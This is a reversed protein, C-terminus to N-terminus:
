PKRSGRAEFWKRVSEKAHSTKLYGLNSNLWDRSPGKGSKGSIIEVTDGNRLQYTLTMLKGNIRAGVCRHGLDTHVRYAFDVPTSGAPLDRIEGQPTYVFVQDNLIDTRVSELFDATSGLDKHWELLQRLWSIRQEFRADSVGGEKYHWHAAIGYEATHHMEHTRIQIEIPITGFCMVTTHLSKYGNDKPSAIYDDFEQLLPHWLSHVTGLVHYCDEVKDVLVRIALVDYIDGFGRGQANYAQIKRWISYQSKPRGTVESKIGTKQLEQELAEIANSIVTGQKTKLKTALKSVHTYDRPMLYSFSLDELESKVEGMGLRHALPAYIELTEKAIRRQRAPPLVSLTRMNHLRDALKIFVVRVDEAMAVLMKRLSEANTVEKKESDSLHLSIHRLKTVGDVLIAVEHGFKEEIEPLQVPCKETVDHLVGAVLSSTDLELNALILATELVHQIYPEGSERRQGEHAVAAFACAEELIDLKEAPLYSKAKELIQSIEM